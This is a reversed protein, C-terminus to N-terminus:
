KTIMINQFSVGNANGTHIPIIITTTAIVLLVDHISSVSVVVVVSVIEMDKSIILSKLLEKVLV